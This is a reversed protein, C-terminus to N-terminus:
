SGNFNCTAKKGGDVTTVTVVATGKGIVLVTGTTGVTVVKTNSSAFTCTKNNANAPLVTPVLYFNHGIRSFVNSANLSVSAPHVVAPPGNVTIMASMSINSGDTTTATITATGGAVATVLGASNVSAVATNNSSWSVTKNTATSPLVAAVLQVTAGTNLTASTKNLVLGNASVTVTTFQNSLVNGVISGFGTCNDYGSKATYDGNSGSTIDHFCAAPATYLNPAAFVKCNLAAFYAAITPTAVSTGGFVYWQGNVIYIVGTNPDAVSAVDPTSRGTTTISSQFAPKPFVASIGGGGNSWATERTNVDYVNNPCILSTGGCAIAHPSSSPFDANKSTGGVGDNSGNDGTAVFVSVGKSVAANLANDVTTITTGFDIEPAGWSISILSPTYSVGGAVVPDNLIYNIVNYFQSLTNPAIYLIITLKSSPCCAGITAVDLTNEGTGDDDVSVPANKAGAITKVIVKPQDTIGLATWYAQVDGGTLTGDAAVTGFLGGGFSVVGVVVNTTPKPFNYITALENAYFWTRSTKPVLGNTTAHKSVDHKSPKMYHKFPM